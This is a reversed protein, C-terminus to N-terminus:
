RQYKKYYEPMESDYDVWLNAGLCLGLLEAYTFTQDPKGHKVLRFRNGDLPFLYGAYHPSREGDSLQVRLLERRQMVAKVTNWTNLPNDLWYYQVQGRQQGIVELTETIWRM